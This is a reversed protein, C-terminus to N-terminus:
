VLHRANPEHGDREISIQEFDYADAFYDWAPHQVLLYRPSVDKLLVRIRQDLEQLDQRLMDRRQTYVDAQAPRLASLATTMCDVIGVAAVPSTWIHPDTHGSRLMGAASAAHDYQDDAAHEHPEAGCTYIAMNPNLAQLRERWQSEFPIGIMFYTHAEALAALQRASPDYNHPNASPGLLTAVQWDDGALRELLYKQPPISVFLIGQEAKAPQPLLLSCFLVLAVFKM